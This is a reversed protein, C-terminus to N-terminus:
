WFIKVFICNNKTKLHFQFKRRHLFRGRWIEEGVELEQGSGKREFELNGCCSHNQWSYDRKVLKEEKLKPKEQIDVLVAFPVLDSNNEM